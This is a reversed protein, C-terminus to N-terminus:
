TLNKKKSTNQHYSIYQQSSCNHQVAVYSCSVSFLCMKQINFYLKMISLILYCCQFHM